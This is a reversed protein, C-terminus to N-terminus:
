YFSDIPNKESKKALIGKPEMRKLGVADFDKDYSVICVREGALIANSAVLASSFKIKHKEYIDLAMRIDVKQLIRLNRMGLLGRIIDDIDKRHLNYVQECVLETHSIVLSSTWADHWDTDRIQKLLRKCDKSKRSTGSVLAELFITTDLFYLIKKM